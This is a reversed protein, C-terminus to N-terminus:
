YSVERDNGAGFRTISITKSIPKIVVVDWCDESATFRTRTPKTYGEAWRSDLSYNEFKQCSTAISLFPSTFVGDAHVHGYFLAILHKTSTEYNQIASVIRTNNAIDLQEFNLSGVPTTHSFVCIDYNNPTNLAINEFWTCTNNSYGYHGVGDELLNSDLWIFRIKFDEFDKYYNLGNSTDDFVVDDTNSLYEKFQEAYTFSTASGTYYRNDDHNGICHYYPLGIEKFRKLMYANYDPTVDSKGDTNDGLNIIARCKVQNTVGKVNEIFSDFIYPSDSSYPFHMDTVLVFSLSPEDQSEKASQITSNIEANYYSPTQCNRYVLQDNVADPYFVNIAEHEYIISDDTKRVTITLYENPPLIVDTVWGTGWRYGDAVDSTNWVVYLFNYGDKAKLHVPSNLSFPTAISIRNTSEGYHPTPNGFYEKREFQSYYSYFPVSVNNLAQSVSDIKTIINLSQKVDSPTLVQYNYFDIKFIYNPYRTSWDDFDIHKLLGDATYSTTFASGNWAGVFNHTSKDYALLYMALPTTTTLIYKNPVYYPTYCWENSGNFVGGAITLAGQRIEIGDYMLCTLADDVIKLGSVNAGEFTVVADYQSPTIATGSATRFLFVLYSETTITIESDVSYWGYDQQWQKNTNFLCCVINKCYTGMKMKIVLGPLAHIFGSTRIQDTKSTVNGNYDTGGQIIRSSSLTASDYGYTLDQKVDDLEDEIEEQWTQGPSPYEGNQGLSKNVTFKYVASKKVKTGVTYKVQAEGTGKYATDLDSITWTANTGSTTMTVAYPLEDGHRQVSLSLTGSGFETSWASFDFVVATVENEGQRGLPLNLKKGDGLTVNVVSM